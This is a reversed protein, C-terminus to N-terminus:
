WYRPKFIAKRDTPIVEPLQSAKLEEETIYERKWNSLSAISRNLPRPSGEINM